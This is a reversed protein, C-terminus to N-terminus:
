ILWNRGCVWDNIGNNIESCCVNIYIGYSLVFDIVDYFVLNNGRGYWVNNGVKNKYICVFENKLGVGRKLVCFM